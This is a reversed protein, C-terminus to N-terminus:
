RSTTAKKIKGDPSVIARVIRSITKGDATIGKAEFILLSLDGEYARVRPKSGNVDPFRRYIEACVKDLLHREM